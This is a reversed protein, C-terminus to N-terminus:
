EYGKDRIIHIRHDAQLYTTTYASSSRDAAKTASPRHASGGACVVRGHACVCARVCVDMDVWAFAGVRVCARVCAPIVLPEVVHERERAAQAAKGRRVRAEDVYASVARFGTRVTRGSIGKGGVV